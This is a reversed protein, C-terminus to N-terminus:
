LCVWMCAPEGAARSFTWTIEALSGRGSEGSVCGASRTPAATSGPERQECRHSRPEAPAVGEACVAKVANRSLSTESNGETWTEPTMRLRKSRLDKTGQGPPGSICRNRLPHTEDLFDSRKLLHTESSHDLDATKAPLQGRWLGARVWFVGAGVRARLGGILAAPQQEADLSPAGSGCPAHEEARRKSGGRKLPM